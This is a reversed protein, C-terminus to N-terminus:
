FERDPLASTLRRGSEGLFVVLLLLLNDVADVRGKGGVGVFTEDEGAVGLACCRGGVGEVADGTCCEVCDFCDEENAVWTVDGTECTVDVKGTTAACEICLTSVGPKPAGPLIADRTTHRRVPDGLCHVHASRTVLDTISMTGHRRRM